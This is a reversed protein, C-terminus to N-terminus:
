CQSPGTNGISVCGKHSLDLTGLIGLDIILGIGINTIAGVTIDKKVAGTESFVNGVLTRAYIPQDVRGATFGMSLTNIDGLTITSDVDGNVSAEINGIKNTAETHLGLTGAVMVGVGINQEINGSVNDAIVGIENIAHTDDGLSFATLQGYIIDATWDGDVKVNPRMVAVTNHAESKYGISAVVSPLVQGVSVDISQAQANSASAILTSASTNAGVAAVIAGPTVAHMKVDGITRVDTAAAAHYTASSDSGVAAVIVGVAGSLLDLGGQVTDGEFNSLRLDSLTKSGISANVFGGSFSTVIAGTFHGAVLGQVHFAASDYGIAANVGGISVGAFEVHGQPVTTDRNSVGLQDIMQRAQSYAGISANIIESRTTLPLIMVSPFGAINGQVSAIQQIASTDYGISANIDQNAILANEIVDALELVRHKSGQHNFAYPDHHSHVHGSSDLNITKSDRGSNTNEEGGGGAPDSAGLSIGALADESKYGGNTRNLEDRKALIKNAANFDADAEENLRKKKAVAKEHDAVSQPNDAEETCEEKTWVSTWKREKKVCDKTVPPVSVENAEKRKEQGAATYNDAQETLEDSLASLGSQVGAEVREKITEDASSFQETTKGSLKDRIEQETHSLDDKIEDGKNRLEQETHALGDEIEEGKDKIEKGKDRLEQEAHALGDEIEEGKDKLEEGKDRLRDELSETDITEGTDASPIMPELEEGGVSSPEAEEPSDTVPGKSVIGAIESTNEAIEQSKQSVGETAEGEPDDKKENVLESGISTAITTAINQVRSEIDAPGAASENLAALRAQVRAPLTEGSLKQDGIRRPAFVKAETIEQSNLSKVSVSDLIHQGPTKIGISGKGEASTGPEKVPSSGSKSSQQLTLSSSSQTDLKLARILEPKVGYSPSGKPMAEDLGKPLKIDVAQESNKAKQETKGPTLKDELDRVVKLNLHYMPKTEVIAATLGRSRIGGVSKVIPSEHGSLVTSNKGKNKNNTPVDALEGQGAEGYEAVVDPSCVM